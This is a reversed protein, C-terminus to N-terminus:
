KKRNGASASLLRIARIFSRVLRRMLTLPGKTNRVEDVIALERALDLFRDRSRSKDGRKRPTPQLIADALTCAIARIDQEPLLYAVMKVWRAAEISHGVEIMEKAIEVNSKM